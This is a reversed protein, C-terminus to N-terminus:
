DDNLKDLDKHNTKEKSIVDIITNRNIEKYSYNKIKLLAKIVQDSLIFNM